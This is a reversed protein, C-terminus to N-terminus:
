PSAGSELRRREGDDERDFLGAPVEREEVEIVEVQTKAGGRLADRLVFRRPRLRPGAQWEVFELITALRGSALRFESRVPRSTHPDVVYLVSAYPAKRALPELTFEAYPQGPGAEAVSRVRYDVSYRHGLIDDLTAAGRIRFSPPLRVPKKAGPAVFWVESKSYLLYKGRQGADLFRVLTQDSPARWVEIRSDAPGDPSTLSLIARFSSPASRGIDARRLLALQETGVEAAPTGGVLVGSPGPALSLSIAFLCPALRIL